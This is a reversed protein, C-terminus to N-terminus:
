KTKGNIGEEQGSKNGISIGSTVENEYYFFQFGDSELHSKIVNATGQGQVRRIVIFQSKGAVLASRKQIKSRRPFRTLKIKGLSPLYEVIFTM